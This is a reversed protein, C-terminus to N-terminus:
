KNKNSDNITTTFSWGSACENCGSGLVKGHPCTYDLDVQTFPTYTTSTTAVETKPPCMLCMMTSPSYVRQCVPCQWGQQVWQYNYGYM